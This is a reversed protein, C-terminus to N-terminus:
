PCFSASLGDSLAFGAGGAAPDRYWCQFHRVDGPAIAGVFPAATFDLAHTATGGPTSVDSPALRTVTPGLCLYGNGFPLQRPDAGMIFLCPNGAPLSSATLTFDNAAISTTGTQAILAGAGTSNPEAVCYSTVTGCAPPSFRITLRPRRLPDANQRSDFRKATPQTLEDANVIFWGFNTARADLWGQVDALLEPTSAWLYYGEQDVSTIASPVPSFDGGPAAWPTSPYFSLTWTADGPTAPAGGGEGMPADSSGEGWDALARHLRIDFAAANTMSMYLRLDVRTITSGAPVAAAVDFRLLGRRTTSTHLSVGAFLHEGAGNSLNSAPSYITNDRDSGITVTQAGAPGGLCASALLVPLAFANRRRLM